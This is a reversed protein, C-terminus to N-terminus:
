FKVAFTAMYRNLYFCLTLVTFYRICRKGIQVSDLLIKRFMYGVRDNPRCGVSQIECLIIFILFLGIVCTIQDCNSNFHLLGTDILISVHM